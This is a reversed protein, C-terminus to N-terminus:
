RRRWTVHGLGEGLMLRAGDELAVARVEDPGLWVGNSSATDIAYLRENIAIIMLHVRSIRGDALVALGETDCREYRGLLMGERAASPGVTILSQAGESEVELEGIATEGDVVLKRRARAPGRVSQVLTRRRKDNSEEPVQGRLRRRLWRDPEAVADDLYVREPVCAWGQEPREPWPTEDESTPMIFIAHEGCRIFVPGEAELAELRRGREDCFSTATRLDVLRFRVDAGGELPYLILTLHRLSLSPDGELFLDCMGHRGIVATNITGPKAAVCATAVVEGSDVAILAVGARRYGECVERVRAYHAVFLDHFSPLPAAPEALDIIMTRLNPAQERLQGSKL